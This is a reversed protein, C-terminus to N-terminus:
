ETIMKRVVEDYQRLHSETADVSDNIVIMHYKKSKVAKKIAVTDDVSIYKGFKYSRPSFDGIVLQYYRILWNTVDGSSRFKHVMTEHIEKEWLAIAKEFNSKKYSIAVHPDYFRTFHPLLTMMASFVNLLFGNKLSFFKYLNKNIVERKNFKRNIASINNIAIHSFDDRPMYVFQAAMDKPRGKKDFFDMMSMPKLLLFDDDFYVFREQLGPIKHINLLIADSNFTPLYNKDIIQTHDIIHIRSDEPLGTPIQDDTVIYIANFWNAYKFISAVLFQLSNNTRFRASESSSERENEKKYINKKAIWKEDEGDVWAIVFDVKEDKM